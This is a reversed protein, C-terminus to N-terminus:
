DTRDGRGPSCRGPGGHEFTDGGPLTGSLYRLEEVRLKNWHHPMAETQPKLVSHFV